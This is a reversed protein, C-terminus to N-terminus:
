QYESFNTVHQDLNSLKTTHLNTPTKRELLPSAINVGNLGHRITDDEKQSQISPLRCSNGSQDRNTITIAEANGLKPQNM